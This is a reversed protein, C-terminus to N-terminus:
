KTRRKVPTLTQRDEFGVRRIPNFNFDEQVAVVPMEVQNTRRMPRLSASDDKFPDDFKEFYHDNAKPAMIPKRPASRPQSNGRLRIPQRIIPPPLDRRYEGPAAEAPQSDLEAQGTPPLAKPMPKQRIARASEVPVSQLPSVDSVSPPMEPAHSHSHHVRPKPAVSHTNPKLYIHSDHPSSNLQRLLHLDCSDDCDVACARGASKGLGFLTEIGGAVTDLSQYVIGHGDGATVSGDGTGTVAGGLIAGGAIAATLVHRRWQNLSRPSHLKRAFMSKMPFGPQSFLTKEHLVPLLPRNTSEPAAQLSRCVARAQRSCLAQPTAIM